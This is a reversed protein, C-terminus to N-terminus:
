ASAPSERGMVAVGRGNRPIRARLPVLLPGSSRLQEEPGRLTRRQGAEDCTTLLRDFFSRYRQLAVRLDETSVDDGQEWQSELVAREESFTQALRQMLEAVLADAEKVSGRPEDVFTVQVASWRGRLGELEADALLPRRQEDAGTSGTRSATEPDTRGTSRGDGSSGPQRDDGADNGGVDALDATSPSGGNSRADETQM